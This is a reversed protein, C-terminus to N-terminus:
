ALRAVFHGDDVIEGVAVWVPNRLSDAEEFAIERPRVGDLVDDGRVVIKDDM